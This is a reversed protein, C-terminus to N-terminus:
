APSELRNGLLDTRSQNTTSLPIAVTREPDPDLTVNVSVTGGEDVGRGAGGPSGRRSPGGPIGSTTSFSSVTSGCCQRCRTPARQVNGPQPFFPRIRAELRQWPILDDMRELFPQRRNQRKKGQYELDAFFPQDM